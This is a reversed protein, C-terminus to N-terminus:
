HGIWAQTPAVMARGISRVNPVIHRRKTREVEGALIMTASQLDTTTLKMAENATVTVIELVNDIEARAVNAIGRAMGRGDERVGAKANESQLITDTM